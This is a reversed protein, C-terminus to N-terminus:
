SLPNYLGVFAAPQLLQGDTRLYAQFGVQHNPMYLENYRVMTIGLVDRIVYKSFDGFVMTDAGAGIAAMSQNWDYQYGLIRDPVGQAISVEWLPRGLSDKLKRMTDFTSQAAMFKAQPRYAPDLAAILACLDNVGISNHDNNGSQTDGSANVFVSGGSAMATMLGNPQGSGNGTTYGDSLIRGLRIAFAAALEAEIDFASDQLLQVPVLVQQSSALYAGFAVQGFTPNVQSVAQNVAVWNGKNSTDDMTPWQLTNGTATTIIRANRRMGGFEKLKIELEKQFGVPILYEGNAGTVNDLPNYRLEELNRGARGSRAFERFEESYEASERIQARTRVAAPAGPAGAGPQGQPPPTFERMEAALKESREVAEIQVRLAEQDTDMKAWQERQEPTWSGAATLENMKAVLAARAQRLEKSKM